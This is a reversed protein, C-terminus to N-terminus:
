SIFPLRTKGQTQEPVSTSEYDFTIRLLPQGGANSLFSGGKSLLYDRKNSTPPIRKTEEKPETHDGSAEIPHRQDATPSLQADQTVKPTFLSLSTLSTSPTPESTKVPEDTTEPSTDSVPTLIAPQQPHPSGPRSGANEILEPTDNDSANSESSSDKTEPSPPYSPAPPTDSKEPSYQTTHYSSSEDESSSNEDPIPFKYLGGPLQLSKGRNDGLARGRNKEQQNVEESNSEIDLTETQCAKNADLQAPTVTQKKDLKRGIVYGILSSISPIVLAAAGMGILIPLTLGATLFLTAAVGASLLVGGIFLGFLAGKTRKSFFSTKTQTSAISAPSSLNRTISAIRVNDEHFQYVRNKLDELTKKNKLHATTVKFEYVEKILAYHEQPLDKLTEISVQPTSSPEQSVLLLNFRTEQDPTLNIRLQTLLLQTDTILAQLQNRTQEINLKHKKANEQQAKALSVKKKLEEIFAPNTFKELQTIFRNAELLNSKNEDHMNSLQKANTLDDHKQNYQDITTNLIKELTECSSNQNISVQNLETQAKPNLLNNPDQPNPIDTSITDLVRSFTTSVREALTTIQISGNFPNLNTGYAKGQAQCQAQFQTNAIEYATSNRIDNIISKYEKIAGGARKKLSCSRERIFKINSRYCDIEAEIASKLISLSDDLERQLQALKSTSFHTALAQHQNTAKALAILAVSQKQCFARTENQEKEAKPIAKSLISEQDSLEKIKQDFADFDNLTLEAGKSMLRQIFDSVDNLTDPLEFKKHPLGNQAHLVAHRKTSLAREKETIKKNSSLLSQHKEQTAEILQKIEKSLSLIAQESGLYNKLQDEEAALANNFSEQSDISAKQNILAPLALETETQTSILIAKLALRKKELLAACLLIYDKAFDIKRQTLPHPTDGLKLAYATINHEAQHSELRNKTADVDPLKELLAKIKAELAEKAIVENNASLERQITELELNIRYLILFRQHQGPTLNPELKTLEKLQEDTLIIQSALRTYQRSTLLSNSGGETYAYLCHEQIEKLGENIKQALVGLKTIYEEKFPM